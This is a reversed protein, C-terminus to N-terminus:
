IQSNLMSVLNHKEQCTKKLTLRPLKTLVAKFTEVRKRENELKENVNMFIFILYNAYRVM